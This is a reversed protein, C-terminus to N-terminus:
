HICGKPEFHHTNRDHQRNQRLIASSQALFRKLEEVYQLGVTEWLGDTHEGVQVQDLLRRRESVCFLSQLFSEPCFYILPCLKEVERTNEVAPVRVVFDQVKRPEDGDHFETRKNKPVRM